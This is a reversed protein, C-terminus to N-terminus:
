LCFSIFKTYINQQCCGSIILFHIITELNIMENLLLRDHEGM